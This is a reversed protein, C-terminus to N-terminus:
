LKPSSDGSQKNQDPSINLGEKTIQAAEEERGAGTLALALNKSYVVNEPNGAVAKTFADVARDYEGKKYYFCGWNNEIVAFNKRNVPAKSLSERALDFLGQDSFFITAACLIGADDYGLQSAEQVYRLGMKNDGTGYLYMGYRLFFHGSVQRTMFDKEFKEHFSESSYYKWLGPLKYVKGPGEREMVRHLLGYPVLIAEEPVLLAFPDFVAYFIVRDKRQTIIKNELLIQLEGKNWLLAGEGTGRLRKSCSISATMYTVDERMREVIRGYTVPFFHNDGEVFLIAGHDATRFINLAHEYATYNRSQDSVRYNLVLFMVPIVGCGVKLVGVVGAARGECWKVVEGIGVGIGIALVVCVSLNFPTIELSITNLFVTYFLDFVVVWVFFVRWRVLRIRWWGWLGVLVMVGFQAWIFGLSEKM